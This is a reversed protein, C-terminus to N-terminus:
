IGAGRVSQDADPWRGPWYLVCEDVAPAQEDKHGQIYLAMLLAIDLNTKM